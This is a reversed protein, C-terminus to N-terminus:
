YVEAMSAIRFIRAQTDPRLTFDQSHRVRGVWTAGAPSLGPWRMLRSCADLDSKLPIVQFDLRVARVSGTWVYLNQHLSHCARLM